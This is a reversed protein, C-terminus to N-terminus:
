RKAKRVAGGIEAGEESSESITYSKVSGASVVCEPIRFSGCLAWQVKWAPLRTAGM